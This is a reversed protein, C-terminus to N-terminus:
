HGVLLRATELRDGLVSCSVIHFHDIDFHEHAFITQEDLDARSDHMVGALPM